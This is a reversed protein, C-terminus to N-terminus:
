SIYKERKFKILYFSTLFHILLIYFQSFELMGYVREDTIANSATYTILNPILLLVFSFLFYSRRMENAIFITIILYIILTYPKLLPFLITILLARFYFNITESTNIIYKKFYFYLALSVSFTTILLIIRQSSLSISGVLNMSLLIKKIIFLLSISSSSFEEEFFSHFGVREGFIYGEESFWFLFYDYILNYNLFNLLILIGTFWYILKKKKSVLAAFILFYIKQIGFLILLLISKIKKNNKVAILGLILFTSEFIFFQGSNFIWFYVSLGFQLFVLTELFNINKNTKRLVLSAMVFFILGITNYIINSFNCQFIIIDIIAPPYYLSFTPANYNFTTVNSALQVGYISLEQFEQSLDVWRCISKKDWGLKDIGQDYFLTLLALLNGISALSFIFYYLAKLKGSGAFLFLFSITVFFIILLYTVNLKNLLFSSINNYIKILQIAEPIRFFDLFLNELLNTM